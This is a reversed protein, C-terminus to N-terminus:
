GWRLVALFGVWPMLIVIVEYLTEGLESTAAYKSAAQHFIWMKSELNPFVPKLQLDGL